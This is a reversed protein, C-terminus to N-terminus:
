NMIAQDQIKDKPAKLSDKQDLHILYLLVLVKLNLYSTNEKKLLQPCPNM